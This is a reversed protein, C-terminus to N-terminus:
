LESVDFFNLSSCRVLVGKSRTASQGRGKAIILICQVVVGVAPVWRKNVQSGPIGRAELRSLCRNSPAEIQAFVTLLM